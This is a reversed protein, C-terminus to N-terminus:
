KVTIKKVTSYSGYVKKGTSDVKYARVKVYYTKGSTLGTLTKTKSTTTVTKKKSFTKSRSYVIQYGKAGSVSNVTVTAKKKASSKLTKVSAKAVTVKTWKAYVTYNKQTGKAIKTIKTKYSSSTYWGAFTYGARTPNKFTVTESKTYTAPNAKSNTGGNLKYTIKYSVEVLASVAKNIATVASNIQTQTPFLEKLLANGNKVAATVAAYSKATYDSAKIANATKIATELKTTTVTYAAVNAYDLKLRAISDSMGMAAMVPVHMSVWTFEEGLEVNMAIVKPYKKGATTVNTSGASNFQDVVDYEAIVQSKVATYTSPTGTESLVVDTLRNVNYVYNDMNMMFMPVFGLYVTAKGNRVVLKATQNLSANAHSASDKTAHYFSAPITYTGDAITQTSTSTTTTSAMVGMGPIIASLLMVAALLSCIIQRNLKRLM